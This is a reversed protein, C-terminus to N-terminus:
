QEFLELHLKIKQSWSSLFGCNELGIRFFDLAQMSNEYDFILVPEVFDDWYAWQVMSTM